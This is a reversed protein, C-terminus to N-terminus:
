PRHRYGTSWPLNPSTRMDTRCRGRASLNGYRVRHGMHRNRCTKLLLARQRIYGDCSSLSLRHCYRAIDLVHNPNGGIPALFLKGATTVLFCAHQLDAWDTLLGHEADPPRTRM